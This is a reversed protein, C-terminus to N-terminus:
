GPEIRRECAKKGSIIVFGHVRKITRIFAKTLPNKLWTPIEKNRTAGPRSLAIPVLQIYKDHVMFSRKESAITIKCVSGCSSFM